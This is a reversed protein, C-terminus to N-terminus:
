ISKAINELKPKLSHVIPQLFGKSPDDHLCFLEKIKKYEPNENVEKEKNNLILECIETLKIFEHLKERFHKTVVDKFEPPPTSYIQLAHHISMFLAMENYDRSSKIGQKTGKLKDYGAELFYPERAGLVLGQLSVAVQLLSSRSPHWREDSDGSWTGLLSLCVNGDDHLNPNLKYGSSNYFVKPPNNPYGLPLAVDFLFYSNYYISSAPGIILIKFLDLRSSYSVVFIDNPLGDIFKKCEKASNRGIRPPIEQDVYYHSTLTELVTLPTINSAPVESSPTVELSPTEEAPAEAEPQNAESPSAVNNINTVEEEDDSPVEDEDDTDVAVLENSPESCVNQKGESDIWSVQITNGEVLVVEGVKQGNSSKVLGGLRFKFDPHEIIDYVSVDEESSGQHESDLWKVKATKDTYNVSTVQGLAKFSKERKKVFKGPWFECELLHKRPILQTSHMWDSETGNQWRVRVHTHTSTIVFCDKELGTWGELHSILEDHKEVTNSLSASTMLKTESEEVEETEVEEQVVEEQEKKNDGKAQKKKKDAKAQAKAKKAATATMPASPQKKVNQKQPQNKSEQLFHNKIDPHLMAYDGVEFKTHKFHSLVVLDGPPVDEERKDSPIKEDSKTNIWYVNIMVPTVKVVTGSIRQKEKMKKKVEKVKPKVLWTASDWVAQTAAVIQSPYYLYNRVPEVEDDSVDDEIIKLIKPTANHLICRSNDRFKVEVDCIVDDITGVLHPPQKRTVHRGIMFPHIDTLYKPFVNPVRQGSGENMLDVTLVVDIVIGTQEQPASSAAVVDGHILGRDVAAIKNHHVESIKLDPKWLVEVHDEKLPEEDDEFDSFYEWHEDDSGPMWSLRTIVGVTNNKAKLTVIDDIFLNREDM